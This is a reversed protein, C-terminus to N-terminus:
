QPTGADTEKKDRQGQMVERWSNDKLKKRCSSSNNGCHKIKRRASEGERLYDGGGDKLRARVEAGNGGKESCSIKQPVRQKVQTHKTAGRRHMYAHVHGDLM